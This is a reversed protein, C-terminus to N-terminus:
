KPQAQAAPQAQVPKFAEAKRAPIPTERIVTQMQELQPTSKAQGELEIAHRGSRDTIKKDFKHEPWKKRLNDLVADALASSGVHSILTRPSSKPLSM